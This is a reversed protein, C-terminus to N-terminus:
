FLLNLQIIFYTNKNKCDIIDGTFSYVKTWFLRVSEFTRRDTKKLCKREFFADQDAKLDTASMWTQQGETDLWVGPFIFILTSLYRLDSLLPVQVSLM